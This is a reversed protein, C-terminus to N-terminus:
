QAPAATVVGRKRTRSAALVARLDELEQRGEVDGRATELEDLFEQSWGKDTALAREIARIIYRNRSVGRQRAWRDVSALLEAQLRVTTRTM